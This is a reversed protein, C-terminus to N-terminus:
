PESEVPETDYFRRYDRGYNFNKSRVNKQDSLFGSGVLAALRGKARRSFDM